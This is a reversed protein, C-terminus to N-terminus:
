AWRAHLWHACRRACVVARAMPHLAGRLECSGAQVRHARVTGSVERLMRPLLPLAGIADLVCCDDTLLADAHDPSPPASAAATIPTSWFPSMGVQALGLQQLLRV